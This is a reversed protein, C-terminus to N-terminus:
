YFLRIVMYQLNNSLKWPDILLWSVNGTFIAQTISKPWVTYLVVTWSHINQLSHCNLKTVVLSKWRLHDAIYPIILYNAPLITGQRYKGLQNRTTVHLRTSEKLEFHKHLLMCLISVDKHFEDTNGSSMLRSDNPTHLGNNECYLNGQEWLLPKNWTRKNSREEHQYTWSLRM